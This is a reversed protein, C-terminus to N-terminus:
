LGRLPNKEQICQRLAQLYFVQEGQQKSVM